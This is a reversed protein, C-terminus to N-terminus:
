RSSLRKAVKAPDIGPPNDVSFLADTSKLGSSAVDSADAGFFEVSATMLGDVELKQADIAGRPKGPPPVLDVLKAGTQLLSELGSVRISREWEPPALSGALALLPSGSAPAFVCAKTVVDIQKGEARSGPSWEVLPGSERLTSRIVQIPLAQQSRGAVAIQVLAHPGSKLCNTVRIMSPRSVCKLGTSLFESDSLTITGPSAAALDQPRWEIAGAFGNEALVVSRALLVDRCQLRVPAHCELEVSELQISDSVV